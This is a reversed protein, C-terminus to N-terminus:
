LYGNLPSLAEYTQLLQDSFGAQTIEADSFRRSAVFSKLRLLDIAPHDASYGRPATKLAGERDLGTPFMATFKPQGLIEELTGYDEDIKERIPQLVDPPPMYIGGGALSNGPEIRLYYVPSTAGGTAIAGSFDTKYPSKDKSFRTDKYIRFVKVTKPDNLRRQVALDFHAVQAAITNLFETFEKALTKYEEKHAQFWDKDNNEALQSLFVLTSPNIM